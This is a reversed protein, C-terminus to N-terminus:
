KRTVSISEISGQDQYSLINNNMRVLVSFGILILFVLIFVAIRYENCHRHAAEKVKTLLEHRRPISYSHLANFGFRNYGGSENGVDFQGNELDGSAFPNVSNTGNPVCESMRVNNANTTSNPTPDDQVPADQSSM